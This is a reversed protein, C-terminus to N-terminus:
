KANVSVPKRRPSAKGQTVKVGSARRPNKATAPKRKAPAKKVEVVKASKRPTRAGMELM